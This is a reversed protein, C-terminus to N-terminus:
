GPLEEAEIRQILGDVLAYTVRVRSDSWVKGTRDRLAAQLLARIRGDPLPEVELVDVGPSLTEFVRACFARAQAQGRVEGGDIYDPMVVDPHLFSMVGDLDRAVVAAQLREILIRPDSIM